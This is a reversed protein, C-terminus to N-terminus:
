VWTEQRVIRGITQYAVGYYAAIEKQTAGSAYTSRIVQVDVSSLRARGHSERHSHRGKANRDASNEAPTGLFLHEVETCPPNDCRHCVFLGAPIPGHVEIWAVRHAKNTGYKRHVPRSVIGYGDKDTRGVWEKCPTM